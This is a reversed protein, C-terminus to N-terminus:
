RAAMSAAERLLEQVAYATATPYRRLKDITLGVNLGSAGNRLRFHLFKREGDQPVPFATPGGEWKPVYIGPQVERQPLWEFLGPAFVRGDKSREDDFPLIEMGYGNLFDRQARAEEYSALQNPNFTM